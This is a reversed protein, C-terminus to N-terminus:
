SRSAPHDPAPEHHASREGEKKPAGYCRTLSDRAHMRAHTHSYMHTPPYRSVHGLWNMRWKCITSSVLTQKQWERVKENTVIDSCKLGLIKVLISVTLGVPSMKYKLLGTNGKLNVM